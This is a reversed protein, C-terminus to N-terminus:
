KLSLNYSGGLINSHSKSCFKNVEESLIPGLEAAYECFFSFDEIAETWTKKSAIILDLMMNIEILTAPSKFIEIGFFYEFIQLM